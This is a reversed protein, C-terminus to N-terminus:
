RPSPIIEFDPYIGHIIPTKYNPVVNMIGIRVEFKSNPLKIEPM